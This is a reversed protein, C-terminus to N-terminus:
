KKELYYATWYSSPPPHFDIKKVVTIDNQLNLANILSEVDTYSTRTIIRTKPEANQLIYTLVKIKPVSCGSVIITDFEKLPYSTGDGYDTKIKNELGRKRVVKDAYKLSKKNSDITTIKVDDMEALIMATIPYSGCGIHLINKSNKLNFIEREERYVKGIVDEYITGIKKIKCAIRDAFHWFIIGYKILLEQYVNPLFSSKKVRKNVSKDKNDNRM